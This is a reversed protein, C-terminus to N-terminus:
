ARNTIRQAALGHRRLQDQWLPALAPHSPLVPVSFWVDIGGRARATAEVWCGKSAPHEVITQAFARVAGDLDDTRAADRTFRYLCWM